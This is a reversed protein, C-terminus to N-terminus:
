NMEEKKISIRWKPDVAVTPKPHVSVVESNRSELGFSATNLGKEDHLSSKKVKPAVNLLVDKFSRSDTTRRWSRRKSRYAVYVDVIEGYASFAERLTFYHIRKSVNDVFVSFGRRKQFVSSSGAM